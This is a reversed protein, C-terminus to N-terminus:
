RLPYECRTRIAAVAAIADVPLIEAFCLDEPGDAGDIM